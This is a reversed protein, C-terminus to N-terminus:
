GTEAPPQPDFRLSCGLLLRRPLQDPHALREVLLDAARQGMAQVPVIVSPLPYGLRTQPRQQGDFGILHLDRGLLLGHNQAGLAFGLALEDSACFVGRPRHPLRLYEELADMGQPVGYNPQYSLHAHPLSYGYARELGALRKAATGRFIRGQRADDQYVGVYFAQECGARRLADGALWGGLEHDVSVVDFRQTQLTPLEDSTSVIIMLQDPRSLLPQNLSPNFHVAVDAPMVQTPPPPSGYDAPGMVPVLELQLGHQAAQLAFGEYMGAAFQNSLALHVAVRAGAAPRAASAQAGVRAGGGLNSVFVGRRPKLELVGEDQLECMAKYATGPAVRLTRALSRVSPLRDGTRYRGDIVGRLRQKVQERLPRARDIM